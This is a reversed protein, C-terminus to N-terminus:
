LGEEIVENLEDDVSTDDDRARGRALVDDHEVNADHRAAANRLEAIEEATLERVVLEPLESSVDENFREARLSHRIIDSTNKLATSYAAAARMVQVADALTVATMAETAALMIQRLHQSHALDDAVLRAAEEKISSESSVRAMLDARAQVLLDAKIAGKVTGTAAFHRQLSRVSMGLRQSIALATYGAERLALAQSIEDPAASKKKMM